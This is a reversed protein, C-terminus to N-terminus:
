RSPILQRIRTTLTAASFPNTMVQMGAELRGGGLVPKEAYGTIFLV